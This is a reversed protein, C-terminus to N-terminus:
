PAAIGLEAGYTVTPSSGAGSVTLVLRVYRKGTGFPIFFVGSQATTSLTLDHAAGGACDYWNSSDDSHQIKWGATNSGSANAAASYRVRAKLGRRPTGEKLDVAASNFNATKTVAEQLVSLTDYPM